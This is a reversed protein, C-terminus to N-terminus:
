LEWGKRYEYHLLQNAEPMNTFKMNGSDWRLKEGGRRVCLSGLLVTETVLSAFTFNSMTPSGTKCAKIWEQHHGISRPLTKPPRQYAKHFAQPLLRVREGGWGQSLMKGKEGVFIIGDEADLDEGEDMEAPRAPLLGGDYWHVQVPPLGGRAAFEFHVICAVPVSDPYVPTSSAHVSIPAELKLAPFVPALNHIGMDGIGGTGFDWWGRWKFPVYDPHYPRLPAPGLWLDWNLGEPVAPTDKPRDVGQPWWLPLKGRHTPRDSWVHVERVPGIAGDWLWENMLRNGEFAMGQNGMQTAVKAEKAARALERAEHITRTLPKECYVHKGRKIAAMAAVAHIHDPTAVLVADIDKQEELMVRFDQFRKAKPFKAFSSAARRADPDCLAVINEGKLEALDEEARGGAGISAINLKDNPSIAGAGCLVHRPVIQFAAVAVASTKLFARRSAGLASPAFPERMVLPYKPRIRGSAVRARSCLNASPIGSFGFASYRFGFYHRIGFESFRWM